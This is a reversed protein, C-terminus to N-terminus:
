DGSDYKFSVRLDRVTEAATNVTNRASWRVRGPVLLVMSVVLDFLWGQAGQSEMIAAIAVAIAVIRPEVM